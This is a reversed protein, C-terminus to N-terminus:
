AEDLQEFQEVSPAVVELKGSAGEEDDSTNEQDFSAVEVPVPRAEGEDAPETVQLDVCLLISSVNVM